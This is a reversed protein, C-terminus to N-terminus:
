AAPKTAKAGQGFAEACAKDLADLAVKVEEETVNLSPLLRMSERAGASMFLVKNRAAAKTIAQM